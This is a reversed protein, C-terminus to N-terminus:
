EGLAFAKIKALYNPRKPDVAAARQPVYRQGNPSGNSAGLQQLIKDALQGAESAMRPQRTEVEIIPYGKRTLHTLLEEGGGLTLWGRTVRRHLLYLSARGSHQSSGPGIPLQPIWGMAHRPATKAIIIDHSAAHRWLKPIDHLDVRCDEDRILVMEGSSRALGTRVNTATGLRMPHSVVMIQPYFAALDRAAEATADTSGDDVILLEFRPTLEPLIDILQEVIQGIVRQQNYVPVIVSLSSQM